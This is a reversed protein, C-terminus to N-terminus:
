AKISSRTRAFASRADTGATSHIPLHLGKILGQQIPGLPTEIPLLDRLQPSVRITGLSGPQLLDTDRIQEYRAAVNVADGVITFQGHDGAGFDGVVVEGVHLGIRLRFPLRLTELDQEVQAAARFAALAQERLEAERGSTDPILWYAMVADGIFKDIDGGADGILEGQLGLVRRTVEALREPAATAAFSSFGVVDSFWIVARQRVYGPLRDAGDGAGGFGRRPVRRHGAASVRRILRWTRCDRRLRKLFFKV